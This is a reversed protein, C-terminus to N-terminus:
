DVFFFVLFVCFLFVFLLCFLFFFCFFSFVFFFLLNVCFVLFVVTFVFVAVGGGYGVLAGVGAVVVAVAQGVVRRFRLRRGGIRNRELAQLNPDAAVLRRALLHSLDGDAM